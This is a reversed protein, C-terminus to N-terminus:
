DSSGSAFLCTPSFLDALRSPQLLWAGLTYKFLKVETADLVSFSMFHYQAMLILPIFNIYTFSSSQSSIFLGISREFTETQTSNDAIFCLWASHWTSLINAAGAKKEPTVFFILQYSNLLSSLSDSLKM